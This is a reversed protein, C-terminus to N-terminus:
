FFADVGAGLAGSVPPSTWTPRYPNMSDIFVVAGRLNGLLDGFFRLTLPGWLHAEAGVRGGIAVQAGSFSRPSEIDEGKGYIVGLQAIGCGVIPFRSWHACPLLAVAARQTSIKAGTARDTVALPPSWRGEVVMSLSTWRVGLDTVLDLAANSPMTGLSLATGLGLQFRPREPKSSSPSLPPSKEVAALPAAVAPSATIVPPKAPAPEVDLKVAIQLALVEILTFCDRHEADISWSIGLQGRLEAHGQYKSGARALKVVLKTPAGAAFPKFRLQKAEVVDRFVQETPCRESGRQRTYELQVSRPPPPDTALAPSAALLIAAPLLRGRPSM